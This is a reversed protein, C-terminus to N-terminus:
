VARQMGPLRDSKQPSGPQQGRRSEGRNWTCSQFAYEPALRLWSDKLSIKALVPRPQVM